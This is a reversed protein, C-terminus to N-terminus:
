AIAKVWELLKHDMWYIGKQGKEWGLFGMHGGYKSVWVSINDPINMRDLIKYDIFPDDEAFLLYCPVKIHEIFQISSCRYYYDMAGMYGWIPAIVKDDFEYLSRVPYDTLWPKAQKLLYSLYYHHYLRLAKTEIRKVSEYMDLIPCVAILFQLLKPGEERLEGALKLALNGGLSFGILIIPVKPHNKKLFKLVSLLDHSAGANYPKSCLGKGSGCGRMNVRVVRYDERSFKRALRILYGSQHSGGLGHVLVVAARCKKGHAPETVECSLRDGDDLNVLMPASSPDRGNPCYQSLVMQLHPSSIGPIPKFNTHHVKM